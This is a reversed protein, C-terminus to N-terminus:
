RYALGKRAFSKAKWWAFSTEVGVPLCPGQPYQLKRSAWSIRKLAWRYALGKRAEGSKVWDGCPNRPLFNLVEASKPTIWLSALSTRFSQQFQRPENM